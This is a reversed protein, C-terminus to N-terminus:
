KQVVMVRSRSFAGTKLRYLYVGSALGTADFSVDYSGSAQREGDVLVARTRGLMDYVRITVTAAEPLTYSFTTTPNFPNPYNSTLTYQSPVTAPITEVPTPLATYAYVVGSEKFSGVFARDGDLVVSTGYWDGVVGDSATLKFKELWIGGILKFIYAAGQRGNDFRAGILLLNGGASVARGFWEGAAGDSAILKAEEQWTDGNRRFVYVAGQDGGVGLAGVAMVDGRVSVIGFLDDPVGDGATLKATQQWTDGDKRFVYVAGRGDDNSLAGIYAEEGQLQVRIGFLDGAQGDGATLKAEEQWTDGNRRFIYAAGKEDKLIAGVLAVDGLLSVSDGFNDNETSDDPMLRAEEQWVAGNWRYVYASGALAANASASAGVLAVDGEVAVAEGFRGKDVVVGPVLRTEEQWANGDWRFVFAAGQQNDSLMAGVVAVDNSVAITNGFGNIGSLSAPILKAETQAYAWRTSSLLALALIVGMWCRHFNNM